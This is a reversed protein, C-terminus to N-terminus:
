WADAVWVDFSVLKIAVDRSMLDHGHGRYVRIRFVVVYGNM